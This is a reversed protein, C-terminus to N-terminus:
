YYEEEVFDVALPNHSVRPVEQIEDDSLEDGDEDELGDGPLNREAVNGGDIPSAVSLSLPAGINGVIRSAFRLDSARSVDFSPRSYPGSTDSMYIERLNLIFSSLVMAPAPQTLCNVYYFSDNLYAVIYIINSIFFLLFYLTGDRLLLTTLPVKMKVHDADRKIKYTINLISLFEPTDTIFPIANSVDYVDFGYGTYVGLCIRPPLFTSNLVAVVVAYRWSRGGVAYVRLSDFVTSTLNMIIDSGLFVYFLAMECHKIGLLLKSTTDSNQRYFSAM